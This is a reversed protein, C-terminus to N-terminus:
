EGRRVGCWEVLKDATQRALADAALSEEVVVHDAGADRVWKARLESSSRAIVRAEPAIRRIHRCAEAAAEDDPVTLVVADADALGASHLVEDNTVDGFVISRGLAAQKEVTRTNLEIIVIEAGLAGAEDAVARGTPGFGAVVVRPARRANDGAADERDRPVHRVEARDPHWPATPLLRGWPAFRRGAAMLAPTVILTAIIVAVTGAKERAGLLGADAAFALVILSFEGSQGLTLGSQVAVSGPVGVVWSSATISFIKIAILVAAGVPVIWWIRGVAMLDLQLGVSTFFVALFLERLPGLQGSIHHKVPTSALVFGSVFAGLASSFGLWGAVVGSGLALAASSVLLADHGLRRTLWRFAPPLGVATVAILGVAILVQVGFGLQRPDSPAEVGEAAALIPILALVALVLVDQVILVGFCLRGYPRALERRGQIARLVVATSSMAMGMGIAAAVPWSLGLGLGVAGLLISSFVTSVIGASLLTRLGQGLRSADLHLGVTFMLLMVALEGLVDLEGPNEVLGLVGPGIVSGGLLYGPIPSLRALGFAVSVVGAAVLVHLVDVALPDIEGAALTLMGTLLM